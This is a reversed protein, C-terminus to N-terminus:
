QIQKPVIEVKNKQTKIRSKQQVWLNLAIKM